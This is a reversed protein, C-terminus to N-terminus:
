GTYMDGITFVNYPSVNRENCRLLKESKTWNITFTVSADDEIASTPTRVTVVQDIYAIFM